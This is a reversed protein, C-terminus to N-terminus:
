LVPLWANPIFFVLISSIETKEFEGKIYKNYIKKHIRPENATETEQKVTNRYM